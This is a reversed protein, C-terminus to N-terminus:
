GPDAKVLPPIHLVMPKSKGKLHMEISPWDTGDLADRVTDSVLLPAVGKTASEIRAAINVADGIATFSASKPHGIDGVVVSGYHIGIGIEFRERYTAALYANFGELRSLMDCAAGYALTAPHGGGDLGFIAMIGDGMYKDIRGGNDHIADGMEMFYRNLIHVIDHPLHRESFPTFSRIDSFLIAVERERASNSQHLLKRDLQDKVVRRVTVRDTLQAGLQCSLRIDDSWNLKDALKQELANRPPLKGGLVVVRCTSCRAKAGCAHVMPIGARLCEDLLTSDAGLSVFGENEVHVRRDNM